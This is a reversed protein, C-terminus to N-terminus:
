SSCATCLSRCTLPRRRGGGGGSQAVKSCFLLLFNETTRGEFAIKRSVTWEETSYVGCYKTCRLVGNWPGSTWAVTWGSGRAGSGHGHAPPGCCRCCCRAEAWRPTRLASVTNGPFHKTRVARLFFPSSFMRGVCRVSVRLLELGQVEGSRRVGSPPVCKAAAVGALQTRRKPSTHTHKRGLHSKPFKPPKEASEDVFKAGTWHGALVCSVPDFHTSFFSVLFKSSQGLM